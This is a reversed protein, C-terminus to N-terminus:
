RVRLLIGTVKMPQSSLRLRGTGGRFKESLDRPLKGIGQYENPRLNNRLIGALSGARCIIWMKLASKASGKMKRRGFFGFTHM